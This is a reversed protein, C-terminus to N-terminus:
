IGSGALTSSATIKTPDSANGSITLTNTTVTGVGANIPLSGGSGYTLVANAIGTLGGSTTTGFKGIKATAAFAISGAAASAGPGLTIGSTGALTIGGAAPVDLIGGASGAGLTIGATGLTSKVVTSTSATLTFEVGSTSTDYLKVYNTQDGIILGDNAANASVAISDAATLSSIVVEGVASYAGALFDSNVLAIKAAGAITITGGTNLTLTETDALSVVGGTGTLLSANASSGGTILADTITVKDAGTGVVLTGDVTVTTSSTGIGLVGTAGITLTEGTAIALDALGTATVDLTAPVLPLLAEISTVDATAAAKIIVNTIAGTNDVVIQDNDALETLIGAVAAEAPTGGDLAHTPSESGSGGQYVINPSSFTVKSMGISGALTYTGAPIKWAAVASATTADVDRYGVVSAVVKIYKGADAKVATYTADTAGSIVNTAGGASTGNYWTYSIINEAAALPSSFAATLTEDEKVAGTLGLTSELVTSQPTLTASALHTATITGVDNGSLGILGNPGITATVDDATDGSTGMDLVVTMNPAVTVPAGAIVGTITIPSTAFTATANAYLTFAVTDAPAAALSLVFTSAVSNVTGTSRYLDAALPTNAAEITGTAASTKTGHYGIVKVRLKITEGEDATALTYTTATSDFGSIATYEGANSRLWEYLVLVGPGAAPNLSTADATITQHVHLDPATISVSGGLATVTQGTLSSGSFSASTGTGALATVLDNALTVTIDDDGGSDGNTPRLTISTDTPTGTITGDIHSASAFSITPGVYLDFTKGAAPTDDELILVFTTPTSSVTGTSKYVASTDEPEAPGGGGGGGDDCGTFLLGFALAMAAMGTLFLKTLKM